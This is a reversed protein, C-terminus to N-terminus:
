TLDGPEGVILAAVALAHDRRVEHALHLDVEGFIGSPREALADVSIRPRRAIQEVALTRRRRPQTAHPEMSRSRSRDDASRCPQGRTGVRVGLGGGRIWHLARDRVAPVAMALGFADSLFGPLILAAAGLAVLSGDLVDSDEGGHRGQLAGRLRMMAAAGARKLLSAGILSTAIGALLAWGFGILHAVGVFVLVESVVWITFLLKLRSSLLM